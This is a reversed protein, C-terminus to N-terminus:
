IDDYMRGPNFICQPDLNAKLRRHIAAVAPALPHFVSQPAVGGRFWTAHGGGERAVAFIRDASVDPAARLWRLAGGWEILQEGALDLQPAISSVSLRWCAKDPQESFFRHRHERVSEWIADADDVAEGGLLAGAARVASQAGSLRVLLEGDHWVSASIPLPQGGWLNLRRIADAQDAELRLTVETLPRPLVKLSVEVILGLVGMSGAMLRSVDYGAVNKMVRGGFHLLQGRGDIITAGLIFDRVAGAAQRRPGSLGAAVMGGVTAGDGFHPPEFALMQNHQALLSELEVLPTGARVTVVLETPDYDVIGSLHRTDLIEGVPNRGYWDKSGGGRIRLPQRLEAATRIRDAIERLQHEM